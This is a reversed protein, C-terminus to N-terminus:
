RRTMLPWLLRADRWAATSGARISAAQSRALAEARATLAKALAAFDATARIM